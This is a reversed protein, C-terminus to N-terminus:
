KRNAPEPPEAPQEQPQEPAPDPPPPEPLPEPEPEPEPEAPQPPQVPTPPRGTLPTAPQTGAAPTGAGTGTGSGAGTDTGTGTGTPKGTLPSGTMPTAPGAGPKAPLQGPPPEQGNFTFVWDSIKRKGEFAQFRSPFNSVKIPEATSLSHIGLVGLKDGMYVIGWEPKGTMPDVFVKRLHRRTGPFRPDKLLEKMTPPQQPQGQPTAAAYSKLADSFQEGIYLLEREAAARQITAGLRVTTAAVLGLIAVLIIVSVYTFGRAPRAPTFGRAPRRPPTLWRM